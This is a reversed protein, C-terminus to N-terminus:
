ERDAGRAEDAFTSLSAMLDRKAQRIALAPPLEFEVQKRRLKERIWWDEDVEDIGRLPRGTGPLGDFSGSERALRIQRDVSM